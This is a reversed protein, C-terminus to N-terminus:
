LDHNGNHDYHELILTFLSNPKSVPRRAKVVSLLQKFSLSPHVYRQLFAMVATASRSIGMNCHVLINTPHTVNSRFLETHIISAIHIFAKTAKYADESIDDDLDFHRFQINREGSYPLTAWENAVSIVMTIGNEDLWSANHAACVNGLYLGSIILDADNYPDTASPKWYEARKRISQCDEESVRKSSQVFIFFLCILIIFM